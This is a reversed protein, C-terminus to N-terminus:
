LHDRGCTDTAAAAAAGPRWGAPDQQLDGRGGSPRGRADGLGGGGAPVDGRHGPPDRRFRLDGEGDEAEQHRLAPRPPLQGSGGPRRRQHGPLGTPPRLRLREQREAAPQCLGPSHTKGLQVHHLLTPLTEVPLADCFLADVPPTPNNVPRETRTLVTVDTHILQLDGRVAKLM